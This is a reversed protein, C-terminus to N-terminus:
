WELVRAKVGIENLGIDYDQALSSTHKVFYTLGHNAEYGFEVAGLMNEWDYFTSWTQGTNFPLKVERRIRIDDHSSHASVAIDVYFTGAEAIKSFALFILVWIIITLYVTTKM